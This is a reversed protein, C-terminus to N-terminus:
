RALGVFFSFNQIQDGPASAVHDIAAEYATRMVDFYQSTYAWRGLEVAAVYADDDLDRRGNAAVLATRLHAGANRRDAGLEARGSIIQALVPDVGSAAGQAQSLRVAISAPEIAEAYKALTVRLRALNFALVATRGGEGDRAQSAELAAAAPAEAGARDGRQLAAMYAHYNDMVPNAQQAAAASGLFAMLAMAFLFRKM